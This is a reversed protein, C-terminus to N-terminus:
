TLVGGAYPQGPIAACMQVPRLLTFIRATSRPDLTGVAAIPLAPLTGADDEQAFAQAAVVVLRGNADLPYRRFRVSGGITGGPHELNGGITVVHNPHVEVVIDAHTRMRQLRAMNAFRFIGAPASAQRDLVIIDGAVPPHTTPAFAHYTGQRANPGVTRRYAELAYEWHATSARLLEDRGVHNTGVTAELGLTIAAGRVCSSVWVASWAAFTGADLHAERARRLATDVLTALNAPTTAGPVGTMLVGRVRQVETTITAPPTALTPLSGYSTTAAIANAQMATLTAPRIDASAALYYRVLDGFMSVSSEGIPVGAATHWRTREARAAAVVADRVQQETRQVSNPGFFGCRTVLGGVQQQAHRWLVDSGRSEEDYSAEGARAKRQRGAGGAGVLDAFFLDAARRESASRCVRNWQEGM